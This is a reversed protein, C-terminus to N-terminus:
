CAPTGTSMSTRGIPSSPRARTLSTTSSSGWAAARTRRSTRTARYHAPLVALAERALREREEDDVYVIDDKFARRSIAVPGCHLSTGGPSTQGPTCPPNDGCVCGMCACTPVGGCSPPIPACGVPLPETEGGATEICQTGPQCGADGGCSNTVWSPPAADLATCTAAHCHARRTPRCGLFLLWTPPSGERSPPCVRETSRRRVVGPLLLRSTEPVRPSDSRTPTSRLCVARKRRMTSM